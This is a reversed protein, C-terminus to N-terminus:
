SAPPSFQIFVEDPNGYYGNGNFPSPSVSWTLEIGNSTDHQTGDLPATALLRQSVGDPIHLQKFMCVVDTMQQDTSGAESSVRTGDFTLTSGSGKCTNYAAKIRDAASIGGCGALTAAATLVLAIAVLAQSSRAATPAPAGARGRKPRHNVSGGNALSTSERRRLFTGVSM